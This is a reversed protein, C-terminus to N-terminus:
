RSLNLSFFTFPGTRRNVIPLPHAHTVDENDLETINTVHQQRRRSNSGNLSCSRIHPDRHQYITPCFLYQAPVGIQVLDYDKVLPRQPCLRPQDGSQPSTLEICHNVQGISVPRRKQGSDASCRHPNSEIVFVTPPSSIVCLHNLM